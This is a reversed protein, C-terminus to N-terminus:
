RLTGEKNASARNSRNGNCAPVCWAVLRLSMDRRCTAGQTSSTFANGAVPRRNPACMIIEIWYAWKVQNDSSSHKKFYRLAASRLNHWRKKIEEESKPM